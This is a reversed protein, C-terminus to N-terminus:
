DAVMLGGAEELQEELKLLVKQVSLAWHDPDSTHLEIFDISGLDRLDDPAQGLFEGIRTKDAADVVPQVPKGAAKAWRLESQCFPREFYGTGEKGDIRGSVIALVAGSGEVAEKMAAESRDSMEVDLWATLGRQQLAFYLKTALKAAHGDRQM